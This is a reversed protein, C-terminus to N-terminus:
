TSELKQFGKGSNELYFICLLPKDDGEELPPGLQAAQGHGYVPEKGLLCLPSDFERNRARCASAYIESSDLWSLKTM